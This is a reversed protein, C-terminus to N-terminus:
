TKAGCLCQHSGSSHPARLCMHASGGLDPCGSGWSFGCTGDTVPMPFVDPVEILTRGEVASEPRELVSGPTM